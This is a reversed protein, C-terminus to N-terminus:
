IIKLAIWWKLFLMFILGQGQPRARAPAEQREQAGAPARSRRLSECANDGDRRAGMGERKAGGRAAEQAAAERRCGGWAIAGGGIATNTTGEGADMVTAKTDICQPQGSWRESGGELGAVAATSGRQQWCEQSHSAPHAGCRAGLPHAGARRRPVGGARADAQLRCMSAPPM